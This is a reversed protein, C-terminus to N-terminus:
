QIWDIKRTYFQIFVVIFQLCNLCILRNNNYGKVFSCLLNRDEEKKPTPPIFLNLYYNQSSEGWVVRFLYISFMVARTVFLM